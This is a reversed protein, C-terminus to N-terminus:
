PPAAGGGRAGEAPYPAGPEGGSHIRQKELRAKKRPEAEFDRSM